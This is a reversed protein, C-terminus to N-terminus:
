SDKWVGCPQVFVPAFVPAAAIFFFEICARGIAVCIDLVIPILNDATDLLKSYFYHSCASRVRVIEFTGLSVVM